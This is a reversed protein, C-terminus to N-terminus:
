EVDNITLRGGDNGRLNTRRVLEFRQPIPPMIQVKVYVRHDSGSCPEGRGNYWVPTDDYGTFRIEQGSKTQM